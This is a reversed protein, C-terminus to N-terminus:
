FRKWQKSNYKNILDNFRTQPMATVKLYGCLNQYTSFNKELLQDIEVLYPQTKMQTKIEQWGVVHHNLNKILQMRKMQNSVPLIKQTNLLRQLDKQYFEDGM